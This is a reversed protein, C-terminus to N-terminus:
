ASMREDATEAGPAENRMNFVRASATQFRNGPFVRIDVNPRRSNLERMAAEHDFEAMAVEMNAQLEAMRIIGVPTPIHSMILAACDVTVLIFLFIFTSMSVDINGSTIKSYLASLMLGPSQRKKMEQAIEVDVQKREEQLREALKEATEVRKQADGAGAAIQSAENIELNFGIAKTGNGQVRQQGDSLTAGAIEADRLTILRKLRMGADDAAAKEARLRKLEEANAQESGAMQELRASFRPDQRVGKEIDPLLSGSNAGAVVFINVTISLILLLIRAFNLIAPVAMGSYTQAILAFDVIFVM